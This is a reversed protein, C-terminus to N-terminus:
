ARTAMAAREALRVIAEAVERPRVAMALHGAVVEETPLGDAVARNRAASYADSLLLYAGPLDTWGRPITVTQEFYSVPLRPQEVTIANRLQEDPVLEAMVSPGWWERWPPLIGDRAMERLRNMMEAPAVRVDGEPPPLESDVFILGAVGSPMAAAVLLLLLGAGSHGVLVPTEITLARVKRAAENVWDMPTPDPSTTWDLVSPAVAALGLAELEVVSPAWTAPGVLPSHLLVFSPATM